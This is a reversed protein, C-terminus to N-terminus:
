REETEKEQLSPAARRPQLTARADVGMYQRTASCRDTSRYFLPESAYLINQFICQSIKFSSKNFNVATFVRSKRPRYRKKTKLEDLLTLQGLAFTKAVFSREGTFRTRANQLTKKADEKGYNRKKRLSSPSM